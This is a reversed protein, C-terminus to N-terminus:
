EKQLDSKEGERIVGRTYRIYSDKSSLLVIKKEVFSFIWFAHIWRGGTLIDAAQAQLLYISAAAATAKTLKHGNTPKGSNTHGHLEELVALWCCYCLRALIVPLGVSNVKWM